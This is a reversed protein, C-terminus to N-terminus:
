RLSDGTAPKQRIAVFREFDLARFGRAAACRL